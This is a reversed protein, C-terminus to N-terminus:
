KVILVYYAFILALVGIVLGACVKMKRAVGKDHIRGKEEWARWLEDTTKNNDTLLDEM